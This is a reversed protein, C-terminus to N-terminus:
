RKDGSKQLCLQKRLPMSMITVQQQFHQELKSKLRGAAQNVAERLRRLEAAVDEVTKGEDVLRRRHSSMTTGEWAEILTEVGVTKYQGQSADFQGLCKLLAWDNDTLEKGQTLTVGQFSVFGEGFMLPGTPSPLSHLDNMEEDLSKWEPLQLPLYLGELIVIANLEDKVKALAVEQEGRSGRRVAISLYPPAGGIPCVKSQVLVECSGYPVIVEDRFCFRMLRHSRIHVYKAAIYRLLVRDPLFRFAMRAQRIGSATQWESSTDASEGAPLAELLDPILVGSLTGKEDPVEFAVRCAVMLGLIMDQQRKDPLQMKALVAERSMWGHDHEGTPTWIIRYVPEKVWNPNFVLHKLATHNSNEVEPYDGVWHGVGLNALVQLYVRQKLEERVEAAEFVEQFIASRYDVYETVKPMYEVPVHNLGPIEPIVRFLIDLWVKIDFFSQPYQIDMGPVTLLAKGLRSRCEELAATHSKWIEDHLPHSTDLASWGQGKIVDGVVNAGYWNNEKATSLAEELAQSQQLVGSRAHMDAKAQAIAVQDCKNLVIVLPAQAVAGLKDLQHSTGHHAVMRLWYELRNEAPGRAADLVLVYLCRHSGLFFRHTGHLYDQGGFDWVRLRSLSESSKGPEALLNVKVLDVSTTPSTASFFAPNSWMGEFLRKQLHTKGAMGSGLLLVKCERLSCSGKGLVFDFILRADQSRLVEEPQSFNYGMLFAQGGIRARGMTESRASWDSTDYTESILILRKLNPLRDAHKALMSLGIDTTRTFSINLSELRGFSDSMEVLGQIFTDSINSNGEVILTAFDPWNAAAEALSPFMEDTFACHTLDLSRLRPFSNPLAKFVAAVAEVSWGYGDYGFASWSLDLHTGGSNRCQECRQTLLAVSPNENM